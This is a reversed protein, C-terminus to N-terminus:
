PRKSDYVVQGKFLTMTCKLDRLQAAPMTYM